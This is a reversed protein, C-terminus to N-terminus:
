GDTDLVSNPENADVLLEQKSLILNTIKIILITHTYNQKSGLYTPIEM